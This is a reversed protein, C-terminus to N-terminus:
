SAGPGPGLSKLLIPVVQIYEPDLDSCYRACADDDGLTQCEGAETWFTLTVPLKSYQKLGNLFVVAEDASGVQGDIDFVALFEVNDPTRLIAGKVIRESM